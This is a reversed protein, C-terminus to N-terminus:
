ALRPVPGPPADHRDVPLRFAGPLYAYPRVPPPPLKVGRMTQVGELKLVTLALAQQQEGTERKERITLCMRCPAETDFTKTLSEVVSYTQVYGLFMQSWAVTQFLAWQGGVLSIM